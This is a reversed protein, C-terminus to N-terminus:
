AGVVIMEKPTRNLPDLHDKRVVCSDEIRVGGLGPVYIGPEVTIMAGEPLVMQSSPALNPAEHILLGTSHGLSHGFREGYGAVEIIDRAIKDGECGKMGAHIQEVGALQADLVVHYIQVMEEERPTGVFITRTTDSCYGNYICGFDITVPDGEEIVKESAVGHPMASRYGSAVIADFSPGSAGNQRMHHELYAAVETEKMGPKIVKLLDSFADDALKAALTLQELEYADKVWRLRSIDEYHGAFVVEPLLSQIKQFTAWSLDQDELGMKKVGLKKVDEAMETLPNKVLIAEVPACQTKAQELYRSDVYIRSVKPTVLCISTTGSFHAFYRNNERSTLLVADLQKEDLLERLANLRNQIHKTEFKM